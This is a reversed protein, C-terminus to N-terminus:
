PAAPTPTLAPAEISVPKGFDSLKLAISVSARGAAVNGLLAAVEKTLDFAGEAKIQVPLGNEVGIWFDARFEGITPDFVGAPLTGAVHYVRMGDLTEAGLLTLGRLSTLDATPLRVADAYFPAAGEIVQWEGTAPNTIYATDGIIVVQSEVSLFLLSVLMTARSRDPAQYDGTLRIPVNVVSGQVEVKVGTQMEFHLSGVAQMAAAAGEMVEIASLPIPTPTPSPFPTPAPSPTPAPTSAQAQSATTSTAAGEECAVALLAVLSALSVLVFKGM